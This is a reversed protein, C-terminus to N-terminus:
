PLQTFSLMQQVSVLVPISHVVSSLIVLLTYYPEPPTPHSLTVSGTTVELPMDLIQIGISAM